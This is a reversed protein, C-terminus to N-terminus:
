KKTKRKYFTTDSELRKEYKKHSIVKSLKIIKYGLKNELYKIKLKELEKFDKKSWKEENTQDVMLKIQNDYGLVIRPNKSKHPYKM